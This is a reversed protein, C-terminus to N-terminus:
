SQVASVHYGANEIAATIDGTLNSGAPVDLRVTGIGVEDITIGEVSELAQRVARVCHNCSMGEVTLTHTSM